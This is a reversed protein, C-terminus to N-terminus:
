EDRGQDDPLLRAGVRDIGCIRVDSRLGAATYAASMAAAV